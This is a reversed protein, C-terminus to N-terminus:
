GTVAVVLAWHPGGAAQQIPKDEKAENSIPRTVHAVHAELKKKVAAIQVTKM